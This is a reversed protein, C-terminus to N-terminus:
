AARTVNVLVAVAEALQDVALRLFREGDSRAPGEADAALRLRRAAGLAEEARRLPDPREARTRAAPAASM